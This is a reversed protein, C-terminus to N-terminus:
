GIVHNLSGSAHDDPEARVDCIDRHSCPAAGFNTWLTMLCAHDQDHGGPAPAPDDAPCQIGDRSPVGTVEGVEDTFSRRGSASVASLAPLVAAVRQMLITCSTLDNARQPWTGGRRRCFMQPHLRSVLSTLRSM